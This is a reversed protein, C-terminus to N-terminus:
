FFNNVKKNAYINTEWMLKNEPNSRKVHECPTLVTSVLYVLFFLKVNIKLDM